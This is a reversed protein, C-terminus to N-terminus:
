LSTIFTEYIDEFSDYPYSNGGNTSKCKNDSNEQGLKFLEGATIPYGAGCAVKCFENMSDDALRTALLKEKLLPNKKTHLYLLELKVIINNM